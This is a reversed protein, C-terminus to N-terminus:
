SRSERRQRAAARKVGDRPRATAAGPPTNKFRTLVEATKSGRAPALGALERAQRLYDRLEPRELDSPSKVSIHRMRKGSGRLMGAADDLDTGRQFALNAYREHVAILCICDRMVRETAGYLLVVRRNSMKFVYEHCPAMEEHVVQRLCIALSQVTPDHGSLLALLERPPPRM